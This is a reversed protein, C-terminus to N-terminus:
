HFSHQKGIQEYPMQEDPTQQHQAYAQHPFAAAYGPQSYYDLYQQNVANADYQNQYYQALDWGQDADLQGGFMQNQYRLQYQVYEKSPSTAPPPPMSAAQTANYEKMEDQFRTKDQEALDQYKKKQDPTLARWKQGMLHGLDTFKIDPFEKIIEPRCDLTFYVFPGRARKPANPDKVKKTYKRPGPEKSAILVGTKDYGPPPEYKAIEKEYRQKDLDALEKWKNREEESLNKYEQSTHKSLQGFTMAPFQARFSERMANQYMQYTSFM